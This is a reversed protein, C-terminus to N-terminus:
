APRSSLNPAQRAWRPGTRRHSPHRHWCHVLASVWETRWREAMVTLMPQAALISLAHHMEPRWAAFACAMRAQDVSYFVVQRRTLEMQNDIVAVAVPVGDFQKHKLPPSGIAYGIAVLLVALAVLFGVAFQFFRRDPRM